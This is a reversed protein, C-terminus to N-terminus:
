VARGSPDAGVRSYQLSVQVSFFRSSNLIVVSSIFDTSKSENKLYSMPSPTRFKPVPQITRPAFEPLPALNECRWFSWVPEPVWGAKQEIFVPTIEWRYIQWPKINGSVVGINLIFPAMGSSGRYAEM